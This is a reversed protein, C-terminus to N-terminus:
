PKVPAFKIDDFVLTKCDYVIDQEAIIRRLEEECDEDFNSILVTIASETEYVNVDLDKLQWHGWLDVLYSDRRPGTIKLFINKNM